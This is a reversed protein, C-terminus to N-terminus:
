WVGDAQLHADVRQHELDAAVMEKFKELVFDTLEKGETAAKNRLTNFIREEDDDWMNFGFWRIDGSWM